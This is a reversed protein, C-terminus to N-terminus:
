LEAYTDQEMGLLRQMLAQQQVILECNRANLAKCDRVQQELASWTQGLVASSAQPLRQLLAPMSLDQDRGLLRAVLQRRTLRQSNLTDVVAGIREALKMLPEAQHRLAAQFQEELLAQLQTYSRRDAHMGGLLDILLQASSM